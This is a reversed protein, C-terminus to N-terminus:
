MLFLSHISSIFEQTKSYSYKYNLYFIDEYVLAEKLALNHKSYIKKSAEYCKIAEVEDGLIAFIDGLSKLIFGIESYKVDSNTIKLAAFNNQFYSKISGSTFYLSKARNLYQDIIFKLFKEAVFKCFFEIANNMKTTSYDRIAYLQCRSNVYM